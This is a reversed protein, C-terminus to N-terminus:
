FYAYKVVKNTNINQKNQKNLKSPSLLASLKRKVELKWVFPFCVRSVYTHVQTHKTVLNLRVSKCGWPSYGVLSKQGCFKGLLFVPLPNGNGGRPSRGSGPISGVERTDGANAPLNKVM